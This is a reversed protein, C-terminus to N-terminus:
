RAALDEITEILVSLDTMAKVYFREAGLDFVRQKDEQADRNSFVIVPINKLQADAKMEALIEFGSKMPLMLDLIVVQPKFQKMKSIIDKGDASFEHPFSSKELRVDLLNRLLPDDEVVYVRIGKTTVQATDPPVDFVSAGSFTDPQGFITKIKRVISSTPEDTTVYDAAGLMLAKQIKAETNEVLAFIPLIKTLRSGRLGNLLKACLDGDHLHNLLVIDIKNRELDKASTIGCSASHVHMEQDQLAEELEMIQNNEDGIILIHKGTLISM